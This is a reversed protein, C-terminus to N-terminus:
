RDGPLRVQHYTTLIPVNKSQNKNFSRFSSPYERAVLKYYFNWGDDDDKPKNVRWLEVKFHRKKGCCPV